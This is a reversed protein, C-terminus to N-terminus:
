ISFPVPLISRHPSLFPRFDIGGEPPNTEALPFLSIERCRTKKEHSFIITRPKIAKSIRRSIFFFDKTDRNKMFIKILRYKNYAISLQFKTQNNELLVILIVEVGLSVLCNVGEWKSYILYDISNIQVFNFASAPENWLTLTTLMNCIVKVRHVNNEISLLPEFPFPKWEVEPRVFRVKDEERERKRRCREVAM